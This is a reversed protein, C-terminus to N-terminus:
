CVLLIYKYVLKNKIIIMKNVKKFKTKYIFYCTNRIDALDEYELINKIQGTNNSISFKM